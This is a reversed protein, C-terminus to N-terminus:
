TWCNTSCGLYLVMYGRQVMFFEKDKSAIVALFIMATKSDKISVFINPYFWLLGSSKLWRSPIPM